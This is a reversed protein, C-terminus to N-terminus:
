RVIHREACAWDLVEAYAADVAAAVFHEGRGLAMRRCSPLLLQRITRGALEDGGAAHAALEAFVADREESSAQAMRAMFHEDSQTETITLAAASM